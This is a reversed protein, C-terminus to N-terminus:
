GANNAADTFSATVTLAHGEDAETPTYSNDDNGTHVLNGDAYWKYTIGSAPMDGGVANPDRGTATLATGEGPSGNIAVSLTETPSEAVAASATSTGTEANNAADTFSAAVTLAHGEDAETPTYSTDDNGTHELNGDDYWKYTIGFAPMDGGGANPDSVTATIATGEVPSGNIAVSLTETPSEAVAASATSTGTEANNAADTFSATVTLAHGEDAETPTYSNDDNGTHVLNGDAYWKYTIGSAPMDGGVANPDSVTATIATGEVPSGNIAVSLTETPSEAVAASAASTGTEANNAADTFSATVTLAHGEDAETPTYSNDDNGTHVLNGDAYWKYTIGSAPMDGGVANPDSVTATIATGEVPSGNIAVSLTETPSEAVAASAASTGTEANNAADTFSATVTLAHGEDAETPTYSNDDNGTHVLNGDAYWKYTIGSAPMDGGVANPDSVTATIATGEVPSGNIAVSLTETPSEAVAASATSTGTEANNAADTFSATVTLAHGEDAETPTYSNDDNGTHVLNGDAYWKYTIGSAPMDGGVANPDSVTATIATGEVPSGNIAVSLTETPSEAVAASAASTGTEANNAADTFSATVTLAHGEDAETPTGNKPLAPPRCTAAWRM